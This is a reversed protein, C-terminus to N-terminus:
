ERVVFADSFTRRLRELAIAADARNAYLQTRVKYRGEETVVRADYGLQKLRTAFENAVYAGDPAAIQVAYGTTVPAPRVTDSAEVAPPAVPEPTPQSPSPQPEPQPQVPRAPQLVTDGPVAPRFVIASDRRPPPTSDVAPKPQPAATDAALAQGTDSPTPVNLRRERKKGPDMTPRGADPVPADSEALTSTVGVQQMIERIRVRAPSDFPVSRELEREPLSPDAVPRYVAEMTIESWGYRWPMVWARIRVTSPGVRGAGTTQMTKTDFWATGVFGERTAVQTVPLGAATMAEALKKTAEQPDLEIQGRRAEPM